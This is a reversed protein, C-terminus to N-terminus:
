AVEKHPEPNALTVRDIVNLLEVANIPKAVYGDMGVALCRERDGAMPHASMAVILLHRGTGSERDRIAQMAELGNTHSTEMDILVLDVDRHEISTLAIPGNAAALVRHGHKELLRTAVLRNVVDDEVLLVRLQRAPIRTDPSLAPWGPGGFATNVREVVATFHFHSGGGEESEVWLRGGMLAALKASISLGLGTGGYRRTTSGDAQTFAEFISQQKEPPIGIGTDRVALHLWLRDESTQEAASISVHVAVGGLATFKIANGVLNLLVQRLRVPDATVMTPVDDDVHTHMTLGKQRAGLLFPKLMETMLQRVDVPV